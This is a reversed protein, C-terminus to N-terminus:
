VSELVILRSRTIFWTKMLTIIPAVYVAAYRVQSEGCARVVPERAITLRYLKQGSPMRLFDSTSKLEWARSGTKRNESGSVPLEFM